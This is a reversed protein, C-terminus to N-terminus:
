WNAFLVAPEFSSDEVTVTAALVCAVSKAPFNYCIPENLAEAASSMAIIIGTHLTEKGRQFFFLQIQDRGVFQFTFFDFSDDESVDEAVVVCLPDVAEIFAAEM